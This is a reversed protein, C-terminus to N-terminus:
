DFNSDNKIMIKEFQYIVGQITQSGAEVGSYIM